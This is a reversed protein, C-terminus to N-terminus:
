SRLEGHAELIRIADADPVPHWDRCEVIAVMEAYSMGGRQKLRNLSQGGHNRAAQINQEPTVEWTFAKYVKEQLPMTFKSM